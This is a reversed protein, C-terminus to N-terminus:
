RMGEADKVVELGIAKAKEKFDQWGKGINVDFTEALAVLKLGYGIVENRQNVMGKLTEYDVCRGYKNCSQQGDSTTFYRTPRGCGCIDEEKFKNM